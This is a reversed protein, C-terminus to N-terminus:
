QHRKATNSGALQLRTVVVKVRGEMHWGLEDLNAAAEDMELDQRKNVSVM